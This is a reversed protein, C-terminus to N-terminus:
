KDFIPISKIPNQKDISLPIVDSVIAKNDILASDIFNKKNYRFEYKIKLFPSDLETREIVKGIITEKKGCSFLFFIAILIIGYIFKM